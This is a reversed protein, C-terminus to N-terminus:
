LYKKATLFFSMRKSVCFMIKKLTYHLLKVSERVISGLFFLFLLEEVNLFNLTFVSYTNVLYIVDHFINNLFIQPVFVFSLTFNPEDVKGTSAYNSFVSKPAVAIM